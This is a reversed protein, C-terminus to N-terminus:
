DSFVWVHVGGCAYMFVCACFLRAVEGHPPTAANCLREGRLHARLCMCVRVCVSVLQRECVHSHGVLM